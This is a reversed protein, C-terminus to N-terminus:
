VAGCGRGGRGRRGASCGGDRRHRPQRRGRLGGERRAVTMAGDNRHSGCHETSASSKATSTTTKSSARRWNRTSPRAAWASPSRSRRRGLVARAPRRGQRLGAHQHHGARYHRRPHGPAVPRSGRGVDHGARRGQRCLLAASRDPGRLRRDIRHQRHRRSGGGRAAGVQAIAAASLRMVNFVATLYFEITKKFGDLDLASGDKGISGAVVPRVATRTSRLHAPPGTVAAEAIAANVSEESTADTRIYRVGLETELEKGKDDAVDAVVM